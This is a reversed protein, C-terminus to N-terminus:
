ANKYKAGCRWALWAKRLPTLTSYAESLLLSQRQWSALQAVRIEALIYFPLSGPGLTNEANNIADLLNRHASNIQKAFLKQAGDRNERLRLRPPELKCEDYDTDAFVPYGHQFLYHFRKLREFRAFGLVWDTIEGPPTIQLTNLCLQMRTGYDQQMRTHHTHEDIANAYKEESNASLISLWNSFDGAVMPAHQVVAQTAPHRASGNQMRELEEHWWHIKKEAVQPDSVENLACALQQCLHLTVVISSRNAPTLPALAYYLATGAAPEQLPTGYAGPYGKATDNM